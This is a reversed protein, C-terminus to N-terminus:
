QSNTLHLVGSSNEMRENFHELPEVEDEGEWGELVITRIVQGNPAIQIEEQGVPQPIFELPELVSPASRLDLTEPEAGKAGTFCVAALPIILLARSVIASQM